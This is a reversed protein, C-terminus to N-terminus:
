GNTRSIILLAYTHSAGAAAGYNYSDNRRDANEYVDVTGTELSQVACVIEGADDILQLVEQLQQQLAALDPVGEPGDDTRPVTVLYSKSSM